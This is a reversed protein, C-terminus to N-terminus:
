NKKRKKKMSLVSPRAEWWNASKIAFNRFLKAELRHLVVSIIWVTPQCSHGFKGDVIEYSRKM